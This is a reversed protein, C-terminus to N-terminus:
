PSVPRTVEPSVRISGEAPRMVEGGPAVLELDFVARRFDMASLEAATLVPLIQGQTGGDNDDDVGLTIKGNETTLEVLVEDATVRARAQMRVTFGGLKMPVDDIKLTLRPHWDAGQYWTIDWNGPRLAM